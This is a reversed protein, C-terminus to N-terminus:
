WWRKPRVARPRPFRRSSRCSSRHWPCSRCRPGSRGGRVEEADGIIGGVARIVEGGGIGPSCGDAVAAHRQVGVVQREDIAARHIAAARQDDGGLGAGLDEGHRDVVLSVPPEGVTSIWPRFALAVCMVASTFPLTYKRSSSPVEEEDRTVPIKKMGAPVFPMM